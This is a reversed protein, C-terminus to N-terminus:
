MQKIKELALALQDPCSTGKGHCDIGKIISIVEDIKRGKVLRAVGQTNGMCGGVFKIEQIIDNDDVSVDIFQSCTGHTKYTLTKM